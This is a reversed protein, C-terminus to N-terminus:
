MSLNDKDNAEGIPSFSVCFCVCVGVKDRRLSAFLCFFDLDFRFSGDDRRFNALSLSDFSNGCSLGVDDIDSSENCFYSVIEDFPM